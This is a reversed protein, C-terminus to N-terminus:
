EVSPDTLKMKGDNDAKVTDRRIIGYSDFPRLIHANRAMEDSEMGYGQMFGQPSYMKVLSHTYISGKERDWYLTDTQLRENKKINTIVVNGFAEWTEVKNDKDKTTTHKAVDSVIQTELEGLENYAYVKFGTPFLECSLSDNDYREMLPSEMKMQLIGNKTQVANMNVITQMPAGTLDQPDEQQEGKCSIVVTTVACAIVVPHIFKMNPFGMFM